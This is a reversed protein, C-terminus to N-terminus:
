CCKRYDSSRSMITIEVSYPQRDGAITSSADPPILQTPIPGEASTWKHPIFCRLVVEIEAHVVAISVKDGQHWTEGVKIEQIIKLDGGLGRKVGELYLTTEVGVDFETQQSTVLQTCAQDKWVKIDGSSLTSDIDLRFKSTTPLGPVSRLVLKTLPTDANRRIAVLGGRGKEVFASTSDESGDGVEGTAPHVIDLDVPLLGVAVLSPLTEDSFNTAGVEVQITLDSDPPATLGRVQEIHVPSPLGPLTTGDVVDIEWESHRENVNISGNISDGQSPIVHWELLDNFGSQVGTWYPFEESAIAVSLLASQGAPITLTGTRTIKEQAAGNGHVTIWRRSGSADASVPNTGSQLEELTSAGDSDPDANPDVTSLGGNPPNEGFNLALWLDPVGPITDALLPNLGLALEEANTVGDGDTDIDGVAVRWFLKDPTSGNEQTLPIGYETISGNGNYPAEVPQWSGESLDPSYHLTYQKGPLTPWTLTVAEPTLIEPDGSAGTIYTAPIHVIDPRIIGDPPNPDFPNTGAAAEQTNTWGDGDPDAQPVLNPLLNGNNFHKEWIDSVTNNNTDVIAPAPLSTLIWFGSVLLLFVSCSAGTVTQRSVRWSRKLSTSM